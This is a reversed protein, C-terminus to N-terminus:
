KPMKEMEETKRHFWFFSGDETGIGIGYYEGGYNQDPSPDTRVTGSSRPVEHERVTDETWYVEKEYVNEYTHEKLYRVTLIM